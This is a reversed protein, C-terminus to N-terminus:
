ATTAGHPPLGLAHRLTTIATNRTQWLRERHHRGTDVGHCPQGPGAHCRTCNVADPGTEIVRLAETAGARLDPVTTTV